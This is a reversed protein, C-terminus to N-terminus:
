TEGQKEEREQLLKTVQSTSGTSTLGKVGSCARIIKKSATHIFFLPCGAGDGHCQPILLQTLM